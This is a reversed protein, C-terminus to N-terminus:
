HRPRKPEIREAPRRAGNRVDPSTGRYKCSHPTIRKAGIRTDEFTEACLRPRSSTRSPPRRHVKSASCHGKPRYSRGVSDGRPRTSYRMARAVLFALTLPIWRRGHDHFRPLPDESFGHAARSHRRRHGRPLHQQLPSRRSSATASRDLDRDRHARRNMATPRDDAGPRVPGVLAMIPRRRAGPQNVVLRARCERM